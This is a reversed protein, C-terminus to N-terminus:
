KMIIECDIKQKKLESAADFLSLGKKGGTLIMEDFWPNGALLPAVYAKSVCVFKGSPFHLKLARIAPTAMVADGIWGPLFIAVNMSENFRKLFDLLM